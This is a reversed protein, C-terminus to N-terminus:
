TSTSGIPQFGLASLFVTLVDDGPGDGGACADFRSQPAREVSTAHGAALAGQGIKSLRGQDPPDRSTGTKRGASRPRESDTVVCRDQPGTRALFEDKRRIRVDFTNM